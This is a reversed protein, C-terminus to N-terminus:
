KAKSNEANMAQWMSQELKDAAHDWTYGTVTRLARDSLSRWGVDDLGVVRLIAQAMAAPDEPSVLVGGGHGIGGSATNDSLVDPAAGAPTGIVPTRCAMAELMPLGFGESRSPQLWADCTAYIERMAALGPSRTFSAEPPLPLHAYELDRGFARVRLDPRTERALAVAEIAIDCGKSPHDVYVFGVTPQPQKGRPPAFFWQTSVTNPVVDIPGVVGAERLVPDLWGAVVVKHLSLHWTDSVATGASCLQREDHQILYLKSGKTPGLALVPAATEWWTAVVVDGDPVDADTVPRDHPLVVHRVKEDDIHSAPPAVHRAFGLGNKVNSLRRRLSCAVSGSVVTVRHGRAALQEAYQGVVRVGGTLDAVPLVFTIRLPRMPREPPRPCCFPEGRWISWVPVRQTGRRDVAAPKDPGPRSVAWGAGVPGAKDARRRGLTVGRVESCLNDSPVPTIIRRAGSIWRPGCAEERDM